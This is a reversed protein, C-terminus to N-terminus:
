ILGLRVAAVAAEAKSSVDLKGYISKVYGQVTGVGIGLATACEAYTAGRALLGLLETERATLPEEEAVVAEGRLLHEVVLSAVAPALPMGGARAERLSPVVREPPTSKLLYGRAGARLAALITSADDFVTLVVATSAPAIRRLAAIVEIGPLDPLGLDVLAVDPAARTAHALADRGRAAVVTEIAPDRRLLEDVSKRIQPEDEVLLVRLRPEVGTTLTPAGGRGAGMTM